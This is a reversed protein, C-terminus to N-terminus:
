GYNNDLGRPQNVTPPQLILRREVDFRLFSSYNLFFAYIRDLHKNGSKSGLSGLSSQYNVTRTNAIWSTLLILVFLYHINYM